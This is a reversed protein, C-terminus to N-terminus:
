LIWSFVRATQSSLYPYNWGLELIPLRCLAQVISFVEIEHNGALKWRELVRLVMKGHHLTCLGMLLPSLSVPKDGSLKEQSINAM